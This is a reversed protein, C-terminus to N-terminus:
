SHHRDAYAVATIRMLSPRSSCCSCSGASTVAAAATTNNCKSVHCVLRELSQFACEQLMGALGSMSSAVAARACAKGISGQLPYIGGGHVGDSLLSSIALHQMAACRNSIRVIPWVCCPIQPKCRSGPKLSAQQIITLQSIGRRVGKCTEPLM